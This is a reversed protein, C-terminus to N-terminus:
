LCSTFLVDRNKKYKYSLIDRIEDFRDVSTQVQLNSNFKRYVLIPSYM